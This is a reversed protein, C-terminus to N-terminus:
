ICATSSIFEPLDLSYILVYKLESWLPTVTKEQRKKKHVNV